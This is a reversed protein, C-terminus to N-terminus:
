AYLDVGGPRAAARATRAPEVAGANAAARRRGRGVSRQADSADSRGSQDPARQFVGGGALTLGQERLASALEPLGREIVQRTAAADAAFDVRAHTGDLAIRVQIPGMEAPTLHLEAHALGNRAFMSVQAGLARAFDPSPLPTALAVPAPAGGDARQPAHVGSAGALAADAGHAPAGLRDGGAAAQATSANAAALAAGDDSPTGSGADGAGAGGTDSAAAGTAADTCAAATAPSLRASGIRQDGIAGSSAGPALAAADAATCSTAIPMGPWVALDAADQAADEDQTPEDGPAGASRTAARAASAEAAGAPPPAADQPPPRERQTAPTQQAPATGAAPQAAAGAKVDGATAGRPASGNARADPQNASAPHPAPQPDAQRQSPPPQADRRRQLLEAFRQSSSIAEPQPACRRAATGQGTGAEPPTITVLPTTM